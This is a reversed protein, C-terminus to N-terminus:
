FHMLQTTQSLTTEGLLAPQSPKIGRESQLRLRRALHCQLNLDCFNCRHFLTMEAKCPPGLLLSDMGQLLYIPPTQFCTEFTPSRRFDFLTLRSFKM